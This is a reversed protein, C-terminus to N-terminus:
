CHCHHTIYLVYGSHSGFDLKRAEELTLEDILGTGDSTRNVTADHLLVAHGDKTFALDMEVGVAGERKSKLVAALTNEPTGGRHAIPSGNIKELFLRVKESSYQPLKKANILYVPFAVLIGGLSATMLVTKFSVLGSALSVSIVVALFYGPRAAQMKNVHVVVRGSDNGTLFHM